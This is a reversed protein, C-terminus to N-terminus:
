FRRIVLGMPFLVRWNCYLLTYCLFRLFDPSLDGYRFGLGMSFPIDVSPLLIGGIEFFVGIYQWNAM